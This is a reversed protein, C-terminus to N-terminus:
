KSRYIVCFGTLKGKKLKLIYNPLIICLACLAPITANGERCLPISTQKRMEFNSLLM